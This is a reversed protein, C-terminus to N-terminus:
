RHEAHWDLQRCEVDARDRLSCTSCYDARAPDATYSLCCGGKQGIVVSPPTDNPGSAIHLRPRARWHATTTRLARDIMEIKDADAARKTQFTLVMGFSDAVENWLGVRSVRALNACADIVPAVFGVMNTMTVHVLDEAPVSTVGRRGHWPHTEAVFMSSVGADMDFTVADVWEDPHAGWRLNHDHPRLGAAAEVLGFAVAASVAGGIWGALFMAAARPTAGADTTRRHMQRLMAWDDARLDDASFWTRSAPTTDYWRDFEAALDNDLWTSPDLPVVPTSM